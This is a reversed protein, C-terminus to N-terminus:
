LAFHSGHPRKPTFWIASGVGTVCCISHPHGCLCAGCGWKLVKKEKTGMPKLEKNRAFRKYTFPRGDSWSWVKKTGRVRKKAGFWVPTKADMWLKFAARTELEDHFSALEGGKKQCHKSASHWSRAEYCYKYFSGRLDLWSTCKRREGDANM